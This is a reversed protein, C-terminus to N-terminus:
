PGAQYGVYNDKIKDNTISNLHVIESTPPKIINSKKLWTNCNSADYITQFKNYFSIVISM